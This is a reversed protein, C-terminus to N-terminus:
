SGTGSGPAVESELSKLFAEIAVLDESQFRLPVLTLERHGVRVEGPLQNYFLLVQQLDAMSGDHMYPATRSVNRLGPTKFAAPWDAFAPDLYRLEPCDTSESYAGECNMPNALAQSAGFVRGGDGTYPLGINHFSRDTFLPGNHCNICGADGIFLRLGEREQATLIETETPLAAVYRDFRSPGPALTREYAEVVKGVQALVRMPDESIGGFLATFPEAYQEVVRQRVLEPTAAHEIPNLLPGTAQAWASDARGDWFFWTNWAAGEVSPVNRTGVGRPVSAVKQGDAFARDPMHCTSCSVNGDASFKPDFFIQRGLDAAEARDAVSNGPSAPAAPVPSLSKLTRLEKESWGDPACALLL